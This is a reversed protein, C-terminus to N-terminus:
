PGGEALRLSREFSQTLQAEVSPDHPLGPRPPALAGHSQYQMSRSPPSQNLYMPPPPALFQPQQQHLQRQSEDGYSMYQAPMPQSGYPSQLYAMGITPSQAMAMGHQPYYQDGGGGAMALYPNSQQYYPASMPMGPPYGAM